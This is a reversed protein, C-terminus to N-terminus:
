PRHSSVNLCDADLINCYKVSSTLDSSLYVHDNLSKSVKDHSVYSADAGDFIPSTTITYLNFIHENFDGMLEM